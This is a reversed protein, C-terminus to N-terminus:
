SCLQAPPRPEGLLNISNIVEANCLVRLESERDESAGFDDWSHGHPERYGPHVMVECSHAIDEESRNRGPYEGQANDSKDDGSVEIGKLHGLSARIASILEQKSYVSGCFTLGVFTDSTHIGYDLYVGRAINAHQTVSSCAPCLPRRSCVHKEQPIRTYRIGNKCLVRAVADRVSPLVHCHQHGDVHPPPSGVIEIFKDLQAQVEHEVDEPKILGKSCADWFGLKGRFEMKNNLSNKVLLSSKKCTQDCSLGETMNLHMGCLHLLKHERLLLIGHDVAKGNLMLSTATVAGQTLGMIIGDNREKTIGFDDAVIAIRAKNRAWMM